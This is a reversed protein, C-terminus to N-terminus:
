SGSTPPLIEITKNFDWFDLTWITPEDNQRPQTIVIRHIDFTKPDIWLTIDMRDPGILGYSMPYIREGKMKGQVVYLQKGPLEEIEEIGSLVLETLDMEIIPQIGIKPDFLIAPNFGQEPPLAMWEGTLINTEWYKEGLGIIKIEAVLGPAIIRVSAQAQDPANFNGEARRFSYTHAPDLFASAGSRDIVFHFGSLSKMRQAAKQVIEDPSLPTPTAPSCSSNILIIFLILPFLAQFVKTKM